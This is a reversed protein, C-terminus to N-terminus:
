GSRTRQEAEARRADDSLLEFASSLAAFVQQLRRQYSGLKRGYYRDPHFEKSLRFYSRRLEKKDAAPSVELLVFPNDLAVRVVMEDIRARVEASLDTDDEGVVAAPM